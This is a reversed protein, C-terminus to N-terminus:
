RPETTLTKQPAKRFVIWNTRYKYSGAEKSEPFLEVVNGKADSRYWAYNWGDGMDLYLANKIDHKKLLKVFEDYSVVESSQAICLKGNKECLARYVTRKDKIKKWVSKAKKNQIILRQCFATNAQKVKKLKDKPIIQWNGSSDFVFAGDNDTCNYGNYEIGHSFHRDAINSHEFKDLLQGTFAAECCFVVSQDDPAPMVACDLDVTEFEPFFFVLGDGKNEEAYAFVTPLKGSTGLLEKVHSSCISCSMLAIFFTIILKNM